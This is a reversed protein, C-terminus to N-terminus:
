SRKYFVYDTVLPALGHQRFETAIQARHYTSHNIIHFLIDRASNVYSEGQTNTYRIEKTLDLTNLIGISTEYNERDIDAFHDTQRIEWVGYVPKKGELRHNWVHNSNLIHSFLKITKDSVSNSNLAEALKQNFHHNYEFLEKFYNIMITSM